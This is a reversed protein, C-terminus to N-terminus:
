PRPTRFWDRPNVPKGGRRIEFYLEPRTRGGTDGAAAIPENGAVVEGVRKLIQENHGYLSLWGEGHDVIVLLGLGALWDAYIVRGRAVARVPAGRGTAILVGDWKLGGARTEGYRAVLQGQVPWNLRGKARAFGRADDVPPLREIARRLERLLSELAAQQARLRKLSAERSRSEERLSALVGRREERAQELQALAERQERELAALREEEAQLAADLTEIQAVHAEIAAIRDARARGFYSYYAFMRGTRAPERQSLLLKLPEERGITYAARMQSALEGRERDLAQRRESRETALEGRRKAREARERRLRELEGRAGAVSREAGRLERALRDREAADRGLQARVREIEEQIRRLEGEARQREAATGSATGSATSRQAAAPPAIAGALLAGLLMLLVTALGPAGHCVDAVARSRPQLM